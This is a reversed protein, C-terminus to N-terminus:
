RAVKQLDAALTTFYEYRSEEPILLGQIDAERLGNGLDRVGLVRVNAGPFEEAATRVRRATAEHQCVYWTAVISTNEEYASLKQKYVDLSRNQDNEIEIAIFADGTSSSAVLDPAKQTVEGGRRLFNSRYSQPLPDGSASHGSDLERQSFILAPTAGLTGMLQIGVEAGLIAHHISFGNVRGINDWPTDAARGGHRTASYYITKLDGGVFSEVLPGDGYSSEIRALKHLRRRVRLTLTDLIASKEEISLHALNPNDPHWSWYDSELAALHRSTLCYWRALHRVRAYDRPGVVVGAERGVGDRTSARYRTVALPRAM